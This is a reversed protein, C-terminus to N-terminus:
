LSQVNVIDGDHPTTLTVRVPRRAVESALLVALLREFKELSSSLRFTRQSELFMVEAFAVGPRERVHAVTLDRESDNSHLGDM